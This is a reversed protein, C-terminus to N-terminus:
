QNLDILKLDKDCAAYFLRIEGEESDQGAAMLLTNNIELIEPLYNGNYKLEKLLSGSADYKRLYGESSIIFADGLSILAQNYKTDSFYSSALVNGVPDTVILEGQGYMALNGNSMQALHFSGNLDNCSTIKSTLETDDLIVNSTVILNNDLFLLVPRYNSVQPVTLNKTFVGGYAIYGSSTKLMDGIFSAPEGLDNLYVQFADGSANRREIATKFVGGEDQTGFYLFESGEKLFGYSHKVASSLGNVFGWGSNFTVEQTGYLGALTRSFVININGGALFNVFASGSNYPKDALYTSTVSYSADVSNYYYKSGGSGVNDTLLSILYVSGDSTRIGSEMPYGSYGAPIDPYIYKSEASTVFVKKSFTKTDMEENTVTLSINYEGGDQYIIAPNKSASDEGNGFDYAYTTEGKSCSSLQLAEGVGLTDKSVEFCAELTAEPDPDPTTGASEKSCSACFILSLLSIYCYKM